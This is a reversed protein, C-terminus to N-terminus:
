EPVAEIKAYPKGNIYENETDGNPEVSEWEEEPSNREFLQLDNYLKVTTGPHIAAYATGDTRSVELKGSWMSFVAAAIGSYLSNTISLQGGHINLVDCSIAVCTSTDLLYGKM